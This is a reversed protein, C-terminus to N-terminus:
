NYRALLTKYVARVDPNKPRVDWGRDYLAVTSRRVETMIFLKSIRGEEIGFSSPEKFHKIDFIFRRGNPLTATGRTWNTDPVAKATLKVKRKEGTKRRADMLGMGKM